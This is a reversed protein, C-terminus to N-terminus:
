WVGVMKLCVVIQPTNTYIRTYLEVYRFCVVFQTTHVSLNGDWSVCSHPPEVVSKGERKKNCIASVIKIESLRCNQGLKGGRALASNYVEGMEVQLNCFRM